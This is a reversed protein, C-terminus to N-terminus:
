YVDYFQKWSLVRREGSLKVSVSGTLRPDVWAWQMDFRGVTRTNLNVTHQLTPHRGKSSVVCNEAYMFSGSFRSSLSTSCSIAHALVCGM